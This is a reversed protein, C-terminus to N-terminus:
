VLSRPPSIRPTLLFAFRSQHGYKEFSGIQFRQKNGHHTDLAQQFPWLHTWELPGHAATTVSWSSLSRLSQTMDPSIFIYITTFLFFRWLRQM